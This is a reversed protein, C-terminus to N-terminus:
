FHAMSYRVRNWQGAATNDTFLSGPLYFAKESMTHEDVWLPVYQDGFGNTEAPAVLVILRPRFRVAHAVFQTALSAEVGFPPNLGVM